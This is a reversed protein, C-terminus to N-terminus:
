LDVGPSRSTEASALIRRMLDYTVTAGRGTGKSWDLGVEDLFTRSIEEWNRALAAWEPGRMAMEPMRERWEPILDLLLLCRNLDAPDLPHRFGSRDSTGTMHSHIARSSMGVQGDKLWAAARTEVPTEPGPMTTDYGLPCGAAELAAVCAAEFEAKRLRGHIHDNLVPTMADLQRQNLRHGRLLFSM